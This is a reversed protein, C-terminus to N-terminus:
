ETVLLNDRHIAEDYSKYGLIAQIEGSQRGIIKHLEESDYNCIGRAIEQGQQNRVVVVDGCNFEGEVQTIGSPLLSKGAYLLAKECGKDVTLIGQQVKGFALWKKRAPVKQKQPIFLTGINEGEMIRRIINKESSNAIVMPIGENMCIRAARLKTLMGGSSFSTGRNISNEEMQETISRVEKMLKAEPYQRPDKEYFGDVDSLVILLDADVVGAVLASLTDNDGFKLEHTAVTDNENIIPLVGMQLLASLANVANLYRPRDDLDERTLLIQAVIKGYESFFKEYIHMLVGQGIAALAQKQPLTDPKKKLGMRNAGTGGAGSTVLIMEKGRNQLDALEQVLDGIRQLHLQGNEYTLTSTGVKVVIRQYQQFRERM